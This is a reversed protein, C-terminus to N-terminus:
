KWIFDETTLDPHANAEGVLAPSIFFEQLSLTNRIRVLRVGEEPIQTCTRIACQIALKETPMIVPIKVANTEACTITNPYTEELSIKDFLQRTIIDALGVGNANHHSKDTLDLIVIREAWPEWVGLTSSRGVVNADIGTGSIDKGMEEVVIVDVKKFPIAAINRKAELLLPPEEAEIRSAPIAEIRATGHFANEIIGLGFLINAQSLTVRAVRRITDSMQPLGLRHCISAGKQKGLGVAIMKLLGSEYPGRFDTHPKIRGIPIIWDAAAASQDLHVELGDQTRGLAVTEMSSRIPAGVAEETLGFSELVARQGEATAGGHSGMAPVIFPRGGQRRIASVLKAVIVAINAIERSGTAIAVTQGAQIRDLTNERKLAEYVARGIDSVTDAPIRYRVKILPPIEVDQLLQEFIDM